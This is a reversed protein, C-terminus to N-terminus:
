FMSRFYDDQLDIQQRRDVWIAVVFVYDSGDDNDTVMQLNENARPPGCPQIQYPQGLLPPISVTTRFFKEVRVMM